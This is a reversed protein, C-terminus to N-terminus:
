MLLFYCWYGIPLILYGFVIAAGFVVKKLLVCSKSIRIDVFFIIVGCLAMLYPVFIMAAYNTWFDPDSM